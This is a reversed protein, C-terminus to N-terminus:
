CAARLGRRGADDARGPPRPSRLADAVPYGLAYIFFRDNSFYVSICRRRKRAIRGLVAARSTTSGSSCRTTSAAVRTRGSTYIPHLGWGYIPSTWTAARRARARPAPERDAPVARLLPEALQHVAPATTSARRARRDHRRRQRRPDCISRERMCCTASRAVGFPQAEGFMTGTPLQAPARPKQASGTYEPFNLAFRSVCSAAARQLARRRRRSGSRSRAGDAALRAFAVDTSRPAPDLQIPAAGVLGAPRSRSRDRARAELTLTRCRRRTTRRRSPTDADRDAAADRARLLLQDVSLALLAPVLFAVFLALIRAASPRTGIGADVLRPASWRPWRAPSPVLRPRALPPIRAERAAAAIAAVVVTPLSGAAAARVAADALAGRGAALSRRRWSAPSRRRGSCRWRPRWCDRRADGPADGNWPHLSFHRLDVAAPDIVADSALARLWSSCRPSARLRRRAAGAVFRLPSRRSAAVPQARVHLRLRAAGACWLAALAAATAGGLCCTSASRRAVRRGM